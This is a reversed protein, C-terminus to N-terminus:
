PLPWDRHAFALSESSWFRPFALLESGSLGLALMLGLVARLAEAHLVHSYRSVRNIADSMTLSNYEWVTTGRLNM